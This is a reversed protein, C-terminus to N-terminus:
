VRRPIRADIEACVANRRAKVEEVTEKGAWGLNVASDREDNEVFYSVLEALLASTPMLAVPISPVEKHARQADQFSAEALVFPDSM